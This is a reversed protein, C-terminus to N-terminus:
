EEGKKKNPNAELDTIFYFTNFNKAQLADILKKVSPYEAKGDGKIAIKPKEDKEASYAIMSAEVWGVLENKSTDMPIGPQDFTKRQEPTLDLLAPLQAVPVGFSEMKAFTKIQEDTFPVKYRQSMDELIATRTNQGPMSFFIKGEKTMTLTIVGDDMLKTESISAPTDVVVPEDPKFQTTLMFFTLLLFSVDCMATMDILTSKRPIKVKPM